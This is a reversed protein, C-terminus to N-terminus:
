ENAMVGSLDFRGFCGTCGGDFNVGAVVGIRGAGGFGVGLERADFCADRKALSEAEGDVGAVAQVKAIGRADSRKGADAFEVDAVGDDGFGHEAAPLLGHAVHFRQHQHRAVCRRCRPSEFCPAGLHAEGVM